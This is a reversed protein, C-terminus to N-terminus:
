QFPKKKTYELVYDESSYGILLKLISVCIKQKQQVPYVFQLSNLFINAIVKDIPCIVM